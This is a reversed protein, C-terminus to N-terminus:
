QRLAPVRRNCLCQSLGAGRLTTRAVTEAQAAAWAAVYERALMGNGSDNEATSDNFSRRLSLEKLGHVTRDKIAALTAADYNVARWREQGQRTYVKNAKDFAVSFQLRPICRSTNGRVRLAVNKLVLEDLVFYRVHAWKVNEGKTCANSKEDDHLQNWVAQNMKVYIKHIRGNFLKDETQDWLAQGTLDPQGDTSRAPVPSTFMTAALAIAALSRHTLRRM